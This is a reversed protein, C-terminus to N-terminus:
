SSVRTWQVRGNAFRPYFAVHRLIGDEDVAMARVIGKPSVLVSDKGLECVSDLCYAKSNGLLSLDIAQPGEGRVCDGNAACHSVAAMVQGVKASLEAHSPHGKEIQAMQADLLPKGVTHLLGNAGWGVVWLLGGLAALSGIAQGFRHGLPSRVSSAGGMAPPAQLASSPGKGSAFSGNQVPRAPRQTTPM